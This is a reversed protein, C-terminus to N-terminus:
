ENPFANRNIGTLEPSNEADQHVSFDKGFIGLQLIEM